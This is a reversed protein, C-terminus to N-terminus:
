INPFFVSVFQYASVIMGVILSGFAAIMIVIRLKDRSSLGSKQKDVELNNNKLWREYDRM